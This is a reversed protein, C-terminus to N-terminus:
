IIDGGHNYKQVRNQDTTANIMTEIQQLVKPDDRVIERMPVLVFLRNKIEPHPLTLAQDQSVLDDFYLIDLDITRPGWHILRKRHLMQEIQHLYDLLKRPTLKTQLAVAINLFDDQKVGGVPQTEYISSVRVVTIAPNQKLYAIAQQLHQKRDGLNSGISLYVRSDTM